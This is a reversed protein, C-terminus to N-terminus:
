EDVTILELFDNERSMIIATILKKRSEIWIISSSVQAAVTTHATM